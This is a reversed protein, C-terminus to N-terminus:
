WRVQFEGLKRGHGGGTRCRLEGRRAAAGGAAGGRRANRLRACVPARGGGVHHHFAASDAVKLLAWLAVAVQRRCGRPSPEGRSGM